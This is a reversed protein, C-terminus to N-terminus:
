LAFWLILVVVTILGATLWVVLAVRGLLLFPSRTSRGSALETELKEGRGAGDHKREDM